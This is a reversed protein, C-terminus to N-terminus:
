EKRDEWNLKNSKIKSKPLSGCYIGDHVYPHQRAYEEIIARAAEKYAIEERTLHRAVGWDLREKRFDNVNCNGEFM